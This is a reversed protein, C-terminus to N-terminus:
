PGSAPCFRSFRRGESLAGAPANPNGAEDAGILRECPYLNGAPSVAIEGAGFGCRATRTAPVRSLMAAKEDFWSIHVDPLHDRWLRACRAVTESLHAADEQSWGAWVDLSPEFQRVGAAILFEIGDALREVTDPRVVMIVRIKRGCALMKGITELVRDSTKRGDATHRHRDHIEPLGDHSIALDIAPDNLISWAAPTTITGNTTLSMSLNVRSAVTRSRAYDITSLISEAEVLPEGGFFGMELTGGPAISAIARDVAKRVVSEPMPRQVKRETYCYSCRLNCAHNVALFWASHILCALGRRCSVM